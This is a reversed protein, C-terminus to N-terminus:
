PVPLADLDVAGLDVAVGLGASASLPLRADIAIPVSLRGEVAFGPAVPFRLTLGVLPGIALATPQDGDVVAGMFVGASALAQVATDDFLYTLSLAGGTVLLPPLPQPLGDAATPPVLPANGPWALLLGEARGSFGWLLPPADVVVHGAAGHARDDIAPTTVRFAYGAGASIQPGQSACGLSLLAVFM